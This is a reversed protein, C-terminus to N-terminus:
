DGFQLRVYGELARFAAHVHPVKRLDRHYVLYVPQTPGRTAVEIRKLGASRADQAVLAALGVGQRVAELISVISSARFPFRTAGLSRM